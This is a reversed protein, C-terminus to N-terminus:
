LVSRRILASRSEIAGITVPNTPARSACGAILRGVAGAQAAKAGAARGPQARYEPYHTLRSQCCHASREPRPRGGHCRIPPRPRRPRARHSGHTPTRTVHRLRSARHPQPCQSERCPHPAGRARVFFPGGSRGSSCRSAALWSLLLTISGMSPRTSLHERRQLVVDAPREPPIRDARALWRSHRDWRHLRPVAPQGDPWATANSPSNPAHATCREETLQISITPPDFPGHLHSLRGSQADSWLEPM